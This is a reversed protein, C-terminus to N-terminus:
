CRKRLRSVYDAQGNNEYAKSLYKKFARYRSGTLYVKLFELAEAQQKYETTHRM